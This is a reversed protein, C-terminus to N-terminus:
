YVEQGRINGTRSYRCVLYDMERDSALACGVRGTGRWVMQTYHGVDALKGTRSVNPFTGPRYDKKEEAWHSVMEVPSWAGRTGMWLNEGQVNMDRSYEDEHELSGIKALHTAWRDADAVLEEDWTLDPVGVAAREIQHGYLMPASLGANPDSAGGLTPLTLLLAICSILRKM